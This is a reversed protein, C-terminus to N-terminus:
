KTFPRVVFESTIADIIPKIETRTVGSNYCGVCADYVNKDAEEKNKNSAFARSQIATYLSGIALSKKRKESQKSDPPM